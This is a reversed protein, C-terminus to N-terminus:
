SWYESRSRTGTTIVYSGNPRTVKAVARAHVDILEGNDDYEKEVTISIIEQSLMFTVALKQCGSKTIFVKGNKSVQKDSPELVSDIIFKYLKIDKLISQKKQEFSMLSFKTAKVISGENSIVSLDTTM